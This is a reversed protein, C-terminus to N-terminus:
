NFRAFFVFMCCAYLDGQLCCMQCDCPKSFDLQYQRLKFLHSSIAEILLSEKLLSRVSKSHSGWVLRSYHVKAYPILVGVSIVEWSAGSGMALM